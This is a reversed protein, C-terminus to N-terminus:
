IANENLLFEQYKCFEKRTFEIKDGRQIDGVDAQAFASYETFWGFEIERIEAGELALFKNLM